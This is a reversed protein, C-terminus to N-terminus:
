NIWNTIKTKWLPNELQLQFFFSLKWYGVEATPRFSEHCCDSFSLSASRLGSSLDGPVQGTMAILCGRALTPSFWSILACGLMEACWVSFGDQPTLIIDARAGEWRGSASHARPDIGADELHCFDMNQRGTEADFGSILLSCPSLSRM